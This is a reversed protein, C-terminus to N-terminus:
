VVRGSATGHLEESSGTGTGFHGNDLVLAVTQDSGTTNTWSALPQGIEGAKMTGDGSIVTTRDTGGGAGDLTVIRLSTGSPATNSGELLSAHYINISQTDPVSTVYLVGADGNAVVGSGECNVYDKDIDTNKVLPATDAEDVIGDGNSDIDNGKFNNASDAEDVIGDSNSDIDDLASRVEDEFNYLANWLYDLHKENVKDNKDYSFGASPQSGADGWSPFRDSISWAM